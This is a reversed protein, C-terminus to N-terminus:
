KVRELYVGTRTDVKVKDGIQIFLPVRITANTELIAAKSGGQTTDGRVGPDTELVKLYVFNPPILQLPLANFLVLTCRTKTTIWRTNENVTDLAVSYQEYSIPDMFYWNNNDRYVYEVEIEVIDAAKLKDNSRLTREIIRNTKLNRLKIRNFAQGKGPKVYENEILLYPVKELLVRLGAKLENPSYDSM